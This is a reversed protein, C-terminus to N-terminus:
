KTLIAHENEYLIGTPSDEDIEITTNLLITMLHKYKEYSEYKVNVPKPVMGIVDGATFPSKSIGVIVKSMQSAHNCHMCMPCVPIHPIPMNAKHPALMYYFKDYLPTCCIHCSLFKLILDLTLNSINTPTINLHIMNYIAGPDKIKKFISEKKDFECLNLENLPKEEMIEFGESSDGFRYAVGRENYFARNSAFKKTDPILNEFKKIINPRIGFKNSLLIPINVIKDSGRIQWVEPFNIHFVPKSPLLLQGHHDNMFIGANDYIITSLSRMLEYTEPCINKDTKLEQFDNLGFTENIWIFHHKHKIVKLRQNNNVILRSYDKTIQVRAVSYHATPYGYSLDLSIEKPMFKNMPLMRDELLSNSLATGTCRIYGKVFKYEDIIFNDEYTNFPKTCLPNGEELLKCDPGFIYKGTEINTMLCILQKLMNEDSDRPIIWVM